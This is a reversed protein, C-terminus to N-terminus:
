HCVTKSTEVLTGHAVAGSELRSCKVTMEEPYPLRHAIIGAFIRLRASLTKKCEIGLGAEIGSGALAVLSGACRIETFIVNGLSAEIEVSGRFGTLDVPGIYRNESDLQDKTIRHTKM